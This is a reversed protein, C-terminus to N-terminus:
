RANNEDNDFDDRIFSTDIVRILVIGSQRHDRSGGM